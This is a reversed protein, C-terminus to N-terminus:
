PWTTQYDHEYGCDHTLAYIHIYIHMYIQRTTATQQSNNLLSHKYKVANQATFSLLVMHVANKFLANCHNINHM